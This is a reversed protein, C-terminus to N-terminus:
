LFNSEHSVFQSQPQFAPTSKGQSDPSNLSHLPDHMMIYEQLLVLSISYNRLNIKPISTQMNRVTGKDM